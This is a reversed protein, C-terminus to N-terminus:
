KEALLTRLRAVTEPADWEISGLLGMRIQGRKDVVFSTPFVFAQWPKLSTGKEDLLIPFHVPTHKLFGQVTEIGEGANVGLIVFPQGQMLRSLRNM